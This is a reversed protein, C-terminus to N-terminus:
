KERIPAFMGERRPKPKIGAIIGLRKYIGHLLSFLWILLILAVIMILIDYLNEM